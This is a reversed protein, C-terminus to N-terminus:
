GKEKWDGNEKILDILANVAETEPINRRVPTKGQYLHVLGNGAGVYGYDADAMEGPGNVVCGMIGIKLHSLHSLESQVKQLAETIKYQTRGCSPCAIFDAKFRRLGNAQLIDFALRPQDEGNIKVSIGDIAGDTLMGSLLVSIRIVNEQDHEGSVEMQLFVPQHLKKEIMTKLFRRVVTIHEDQQLQLYPIYLPNEQLPEILIELSVEHADAPIIVPGTAEKAPKGRSLNLIPWKNYEPYDSLYSDKLVLDPKEPQNESKRGIVSISKLPMGTFREWSARRKYEFPHNDFLPEINRKRGFQQALFIAVPIEQLPDGTLSVRITDGIGDCLLTGIGVSSKIIGDEGMGAETVGLHIPYHFGEALMSEALLRNAYIMDRASSSKLSLVLKQFDYKSCIRIFEMASEVMGKYTNGFRNLIRESLSGHNVGIRIATDNKKCVELLPALREEIRVLESRYESDSYSSKGRARDVYNGPNIRVKEIFSACTEAIKPNYHVDAVLPQLYGKSRFGDRIQKLHDVDRSAPVTIRILECGADALHICQALTAPIDSTPTSTMSQIRVPLDGGLYLNGIQIINSQYDPFQFLM